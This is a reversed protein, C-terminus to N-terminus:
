TTLIGNVLESGSSMEEVGVRGCTGTGLPRRGRGMGMRGGDDGDELDDPWWGLVDWAEVSWPRMGSSEWSEKVNEKKRDGGASEENETTTTTTSISATSTTSVNSTTRTMPASKRPLPQPQPRPKPQPPLQASRHLSTTPKSPPRPPPKGLQRTRPESNNEPLPQPIPLLPLIPKQNQNQIRLLSALAQIPPEYIPAHSTSKTAVRLAPIPEHLSRSPANMPPPSAPVITSSKPRAQIDTRPLAHATIPRNHLLQQDLLTLTIQSPTGFTPALRKPSPDRSTPACSKIASSPVDPLYPSNSRPVYQQPSLPHTSSQQLSHRPTNHQPLDEPTNNAPIPQQPTNHQKPATQSREFIQCDRPKRHIPSPTKSASLAQLSSEGTEVPKEVDLSNHFDGFPDEEGEDDRFGAETEDRSSMEMQERRELRARLREQIKMTRRKMNELARHKDENESVTPKPKPLLDKYILRRAPKSPAFRLINTPVPPSASKQRDREKLRQAETKSKEDKQRQAHKLRETARQQQTELVSEAEKPKTTERQKRSDKRKETSTTLGDDPGDEIDKRRRSPSSDDTPLSRPQKSKKSRSTPPEEKEEALPVARLAVPKPKLKSTPIDDPSLERPRSKRQGTSKEVNTPKQIMSRPSVDVSRPVKFSSKFIPISRSNTTPEDDDSVDVIQKKKVKIKSSTNSTTEREKPIEEDRYVHRHSNLSEAACHCSAEISLRRRKAPREQPNRDNDVHNQQKLEFPSKAPLVARGIPTRNIGLLANLSKPRLQSSHATNRTRLSAPLVHSAIPSSHEDTRRKAIIESVDQEARGISEGVQVLVGKELQLEDGDEVQDGQRYHMDGIFNRPVDYVMIRKNFTHFRLFGDQWRKQKRKLDHTYLCRFELILATNQTPAVSFTQTRVVATSAM